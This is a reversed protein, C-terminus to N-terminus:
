VTQMDIDQSAPLTGMLDAYKRLGAEIAVEKAQRRLVKAAKNYEILELKLRTSMQKDTELSGDALVRQEKIAQVKLPTELEPPIDIGIRECYAIARDRVLGEKSMQAALIARRLKRRLRHNYNLAEFDQGGGDGLDLSIFEGPDEDCTSQNAQMVRARSEDSVLGLNVRKPNTPRFKLEATKEGAELMDFDVQVGKMGLARPKIDEVGETNELTFGLLSCVELAERRQHENVEVAVRKAEEQVVRQVRRKHEKEMALDGMLKTRPPDLGSKGKIGKWEEKIERYVRRKEDRAARRETKGAQQRLRLARREAAKRKKARLVRRELDADALDWLALWNEEGDPISVSSPLVPKSPPPRPAFAELKKLSTKSQGNKPREAQRVVDMLALRAPDVGSRLARQEISPTAGNQVPRQLSDQTREDGRKEGLAAAAAKAAERERKRELAELSIVSGDELTTVPGVNFTAGSPDHVAALRQVQRIAEAWIKRRETDIDRKRNREANKNYKEPNKTMRRLITANLKRQKKEDAKRTRKERRSAVRYERLRQKREWETDPPQNAPLMPRQLDLHVISHEKKKGEGKVGLPELNANAMVDERRSVCFFLVQIANGERDSHEIRPQVGSRHSAFIGTGDAGWRLEGLALTLRAARGVRWCM